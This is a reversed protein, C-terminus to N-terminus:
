LSSCNNFIFEDFETDNKILYISYQGIIDILLSWQLLDESIIGRLRVNKFTYTSEIHGQIKNIPDISLPRRCYPTLYNTQFTRRDNPDRDDIIDAYFCDFIKKSNKNSKIITM